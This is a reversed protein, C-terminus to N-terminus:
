QAASQLRMSTAPWMRTPPVPKRSFFGSDGQFWGEPVSGLPVSANTLVWGNGTLASVNDFGESLLTAAQSTSNAALFAAAILLMTRLQSMLFNGKWFSVFAGSVLLFVRKTLQTM